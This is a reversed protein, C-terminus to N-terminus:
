IKDNEKSSQLFKSIPVGKKVISKSVGKRLRVKAHVDATFRAPDFKAAADLFELLSVKGDLTASCKVSLVDDSHRLVTVPDAVYTALSKGDMYLTGEIDEVTMQMAPNHVGVLLVADVSRFGRPTLSDLECSTVAIDSVNGCGALFVASLLLFLIRRMRM